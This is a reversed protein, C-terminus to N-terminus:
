TPHPFQTEFNSEIDIKLVRILMKKIKKIIVSM